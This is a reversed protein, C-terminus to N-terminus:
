RFLDGLTASRTSVLPQEVRGFVRKRYDTVRKPHDTFRTQVTM